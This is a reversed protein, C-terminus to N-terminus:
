PAYNIKFRLKYHQALFTVVGYMLPVDPDQLFISRRVLLPTGTKVELLRALDRGASSSSVEIDLRGPKKNSLEYILNLVPKFEVDARTLHDGIAEPLYREEVGVVEGDVSRLRRLFHLQAQGKLGFVAAVEPPPLRKEWCLLLYQVSRHAAKMDDEFGHSIDHEFPTPAVFTGRGKERKILGQALLQAMAQRVTPRSVGFRQVCDAESPLLRGVAADGKERILTAMRESLQFYLPVFSSSDLEGLEAISFAVSTMYIDKRKTM